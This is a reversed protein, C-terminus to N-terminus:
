VGNGYGVERPMQGQNPILNRQEESNNAQVYYYILLAICIVGLLFSLISAALFFQYVSYM